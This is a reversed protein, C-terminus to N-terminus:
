EIWHKASPARNNSLTWPGSWCYHITINIQQSAITDRKAYSEVTKILGVPSKNKTNRLEEWITLCNTILKNKKKVKLDSFWQFMSSLRRPGNRKFILYLIGFIGRCLVFWVSILHFENIFADLWRYNGGTPIYFRVLFIVWCMLITLLLLQVRHIM